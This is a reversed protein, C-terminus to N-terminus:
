AERSLDDERTDTRGSSSRGGSREIRRNARKLHEEIRAVDARLHVMQRRLARVEEHTAPRGGGRLFDAAVGAASAFLMVGVIMLGVALARGEETVPTTDGYGVTSM